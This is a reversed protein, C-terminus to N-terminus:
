ASRVLGSPVARRALHPQNLVAEYQKAHSLHIDRVSPMTASSAMELSKALRAEYYSRDFSENM